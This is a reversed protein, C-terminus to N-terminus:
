VEPFLAFLVASVRRHYLAHFDRRNNIRQDHPRWRTSPTRIYEKRYRIYQIAASYNKSADQVLINEVTKDSMWGVIFKSFEVSVPVFGSYYIM